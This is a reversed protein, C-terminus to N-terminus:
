ERVSYITQIRKETTQSLRRRRFKGTMIVATRDKNVCEGGSKRRKQEREKKNETWEILVVM